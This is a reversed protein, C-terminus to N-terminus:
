MSRPPGTLDSSSGRFTGAVYVPDILPFVIVSVRFSASESSSVKVSSLPFCPSSKLHLYSCAPFLAFTKLVLHPAPRRNDNRQVALLLAADPLQSRACSNQRFRQLM